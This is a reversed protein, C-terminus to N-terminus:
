ELELAKFDAREGVATSTSDVIAVVLEEEKRRATRDRRRHYVPGSFMLEEEEQLRELAEEDDPFFVGQYTKGFVTKKSFAYGQGEVDGLKVKGMEYMAM